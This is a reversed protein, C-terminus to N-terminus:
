VVGVVRGEGGDLRVPSEARESTLIGVLGNAVDVGEYRVLGAVRVVVEGLLRGVKGEGVDSSCDRSGGVGLVPGGNESGISRRDSCSSSGNVDISGDVLGERGESRQVEGSEANSVGLRGIRYTSKWM